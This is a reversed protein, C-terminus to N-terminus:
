QSADGSQQTINIIPAAPKVEARRGMDSRMGDLAAKAQEPDMGEVAKSEQLTSRTAPNYTQEHLMQQYANGYNKDVGHTACAGLMAPLLLMLLYSPRM